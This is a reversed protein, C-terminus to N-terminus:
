LCARVQGMRYCLLMRVFHGDCLTPHYLVIPRLLLNQCLISSSLFFFRMFLLNFMYYRKYLKVFDKKTRYIYIEVVFTANGNSKLVQRLQTIKKTSRCNKTPLDTEKM